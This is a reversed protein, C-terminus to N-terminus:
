LVHVICVVYEVCYEILVKEELICYFWSSILVDSGTWIIEIM